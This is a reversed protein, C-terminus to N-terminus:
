QAHAENFIFCCFLGGVRGGEGGTELCHTKILTQPQQQLVFPEDQFSPLPNLM